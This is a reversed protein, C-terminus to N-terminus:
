LRGDRGGQEIRISGSGTEITLLDGGGRVEGRLHQKSIRGTVTLPHDINISGSGSEADLKFAADTPLSVRVSGSGTDLSWAGDQQGDVIIRGSGAKVRLAGVIGQLESSGSGTTVVVDGPAVQTLSVDGSGSHAEFAGAVGEATISGSGTSVNVDSGINALKIRGSGTSATVSSDVDVITQSGSGTHSEVTTSRPVVIEYDITVNRGYRKDRVHGVQLRSDSLSVPPENEFLEALAVLDDEGKDFWGFITRHRVTIHGTIEVRGSNGVSIDITGSGTSVDLVIAEDVQLTREFSGTAAAVTDTSWFTAVVAGCLLIARFKSPANM